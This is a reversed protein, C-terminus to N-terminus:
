CKLNEWLSKLVNTKYCGKNALLYKSNTFYIVKVFSRVLFLLLASRAHPFIIRSPQIVLIEHGAKYECLGVSSPYKQVTPWSSSSFFRFKLSSITEKM